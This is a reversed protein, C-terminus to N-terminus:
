RRPPLQLTDDVLPEHVTEVPVEFLKRCISFLGTPAARFHGERLLRLDGAVREVREQYGGRRVLEVPTSSSTRFRAAILAEIALPRISPFRVYFDEM